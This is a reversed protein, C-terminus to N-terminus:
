DGADALFSAVAAESPIVLKKGPVLENIPHLIKNFHCILWYMRVNGYYQYAILDPRGADAATVTHIKDGKQVRYEFPPEWMDFHVNDDSDRLVETKTFTSDRRLLISAEGNADVTLGYPM